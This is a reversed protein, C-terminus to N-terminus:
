GRGPGARNVAGTNMGAAINLITADEESVSIYAHGMSADYYASDGADLRLPAYFESHLEVAGSLVFVFEDGPHRILGDFEDITRAKVTIVTPDMQKLTLGTALPEYVYSGTPHHKRGTARTVDLRGTRVSTTAPEPGNFLTTLDTNLGHALKLLVDYTPSMRGTEIKSVTSVALGATEAVEKLTRGTSHRLRRLQTGFAEEAGSDPMTAAPATSTTPIAM